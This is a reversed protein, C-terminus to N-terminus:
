RKELMLILWGDRIYSTQIVADHQRFTALIMRRQHPLLGSLIITGGAKTSQAIDKAMAKLPNALINAMVLDFPKQQLFRRHGLGDATICEVASQSGNLRVNNTATIVSVPDID